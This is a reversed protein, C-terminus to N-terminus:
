ALFYTLVGNWPTGGFTDQSYSFNNYYRQWKESNVNLQEESSLRVCAIGSLIKFDALLAKEWLRGM